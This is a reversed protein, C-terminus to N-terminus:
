GSGGPPAIREIRDGQTGAVYADGSRPDVAVGNPQRLTPFSALRRLRDGSLRLVLVRNRATLTVWLLRRRHDFAIGYPTGAAPAEGVLRPEGSISFVLIRDGETDAVFARGGAAAVHTPGEGADIEGVAKLSRADYVRLVRERVAVLAVRDGAAAIGGPQQPAALEAVVRNGRVVTVRDAFEDAVFARGDAFAAAHPHEGVAVSRTGGRPLSIQILRNAREAPVLVPGGARALSLHRASAAVPVLHLLRGSRADVLAVQDPNRLAVAVIGTSPDVAIGEPGNGVRILTGAPAVSLAPADAPEAAPPLEEGGCGSIVGCCVALAAGSRLPPNV